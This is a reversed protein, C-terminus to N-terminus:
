STKSHYRNIEKKILELALSSDSSFLGVNGNPLLGFTTVEKLVNLIAFETEIAPCTMRTSSTTPFSISNIKEESTEFNGMLQNCGTNGGIQKEAIDFQIFPHKEISDPITEGYIKFIDWSGQLDDLPIEHYRKEHVLLQNGISDCLMIQEAEGHKAQKIQKLATLIHQELEMDPCAM